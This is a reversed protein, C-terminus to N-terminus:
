STLPELGRHEVVLLTPIEVIEASKEKTGIM